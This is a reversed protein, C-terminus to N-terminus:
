RGHIRVVAYADLELPGGGLPTALRDMAEIDAVAAVFSDADLRSIRADAPAAALAV